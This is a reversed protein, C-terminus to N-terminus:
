LMSDVERTYYHANVATMVHCLTQRALGEIYWIVCNSVVVTMCMCVSVCFCVYVRQFFHIQRIIDCVCACVCVCVCVCACVRERERERERVCVCMM